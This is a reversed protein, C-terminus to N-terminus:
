GREKTQSTYIEDSIDQTIGMTENLQNFTESFNEDRPISYTDTLEYYVLSTGVFFASFIIVGIVM